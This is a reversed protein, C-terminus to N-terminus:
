EWRRGGGEGGGRGGGGGGGFWLVSESLVHLRVVDVTGTLHRAPYSADVLGQLWVLGERHLRQYPDPGVLAQAQELVPQHVVLLPHPSVLVDVSHGHFVEGIDLLLYPSSCVYRDTSASITAAM